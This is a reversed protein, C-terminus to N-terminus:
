PAPSVPGHWWSPLAQITRPGLSRSGRPGAEESPHHALSHADQAPGSVGVQLTPQKSPGSGPDCCRARDAFDPRLRGDENPTLARSTKTSRGHAQRYGLLAHLSVGDKQPAPWSAATPWQAGTATATVWGASAGTPPRTNRACRMQAPLRAGRFLALIGWPSLVPRSATEWQDHTRAGSGAGTLERLRQQCRPRLCPRQHLRGETFM